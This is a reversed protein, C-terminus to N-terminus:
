QQVEAPAQPRLLTDILVNDAGRLARGRLRELGSRLREVEAQEQRIRAILAQTRRDPQVVMTQEVEWHDIEADTAPKIMENVDGM